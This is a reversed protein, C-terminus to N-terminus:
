NYGQRSRHSPSSAIVEGLPSLVIGHVDVSDLVQQWSNGMDTSKWVGGFCAGLFLHGGPDVVFRLLEFAGPAACKTWVDGDDTSRYLAGSLGYITGQSDVAMQSFSRLSGFSLNLSRWHDGGDTSRFVSDIGAVFVHGNPSIVVDIWYGQVPLIKVWNVEQAFSSSLLLHVLTPFLAISRSM